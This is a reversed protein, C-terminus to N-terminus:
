EHRLAVQPDVRMARRAPMYTAVLAIAGLALSVALFLVGDGPDFGFLMAALVRSIGASVVIGIVMGVFIPRFGQTIVLGLLQRKGAGLAMRIGIERTREAVSYSVMGYIGMCAMLLGLAGVVSALTGGVRSAVFHPDMSLMMTLPAGIMPVGPDVLRMQEGITPLLTAPDGQTRALFVSTSQRTQSLPLYLYSEDVKTLDMSRVDGAIGIVESSSLVPAAQGPFSMGETQSGIKLRKGLADQGPWFRRATAESIVLVPAQTEAEAATFARGRRIPIGMTEFYNPAVYSYGAGSSQNARDPSTSDGDISSVDVWRTNGIPGRSAQAVSRVGPVSQIRRILEENLQLLRARSYHLQELNYLELHAVKSLEYGPNITVAKQSGRLLLASNILLVLCASMQTAVLLGRFKSRSVASGLASGEEKIADNVDVKSAQLAPVLGFSLGAACSILLTYTFIPIDPALPLAISGWFSPVAAAIEVMLLHLMWIALPLGLGGALVGLLLSETLLQRLLRGRGAGLAMRLAIEKRRASARVLMLGAVNACGILLLLGVAAMSAFILGWETPGLLALDNKAPVVSLLEHEKDEPHAARWQAALVGLEAQADAFSVGPRLRGQPEGVIVHWNQMEQASISGLRVRASVPAWLNPVDPGTGKYGPVTIGVITFPIGNLHVVAGLVRPDSHFENQWLNGSMMVVPPATPADDSPEILRGQLPIAGLMPFYNGSVFFCMLPQASGPLIQPLQLRLAGAVRSQPAKSSSPLDSSTVAMGFAFLSLASFSKSHERYYLYAPYSFRGHADDGTARFVFALGDPDAVARPRLVLADFATFVATNVGIGLALTLIAVTSFGVSKRLMRLGFRLDQLFNEIANTGRADRCEEKVKELGGLDLQAQRRAEEPNAGRAIYETIALELHDRLEDNLHEDAKKRRFLSRLRLPIIYLWHELRM